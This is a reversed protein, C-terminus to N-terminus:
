IQTHPQIRLGEIGRSLNFPLWGSLRAHSPLIDGGSAAFCGWEPFFFGGAASRQSAVQMLIKNLANGNLRNLYM